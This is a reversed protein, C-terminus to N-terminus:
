SDITNTPRERLVQISALTLGVPLWMKATWYDTNALQYLLAGVTGTVLFLFSSRANDSPIDKWGRRLLLSLHVYVWTIALLGLAGTEAGLKQLFGHSDLPDGYEILFVHTSGVRELFTGAGAGFVPSTRFLEYAIQSLMLRTSNSSSASESAAYALMAVVLPLLLIGVICIARVHRRVVDRWMSWYLFLGQLIFCVWATRTFTLLGILCQFAAAGHLLRRAHESKTLVALALTIFTTFVLLEALENHNEGLASVGFIPMPHARGVISENMNGFFMSVLGNIAALSGVVTMVALISKLRRRSRILNVPLAIFALYDFLVPRMAFKVIPFPDPTLPSFVSALHAMVLGAYSMGLPLRPMWERDHRKWWYLILKLAWAALVFLLLVEAVSIDIAGGFTREGLRLVGTPISVAIGLFPSLAVGLYLGIYIYRFIFAFTTVALLITVIGIPFGMAITFTVAVLLLFIGLTLTQPHQQPTEKM